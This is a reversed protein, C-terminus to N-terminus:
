RCSLGVVEWVASLVFLLLLPLALFLLSTLLDSFAPTVAARVVVGLLGVAMGMSGCLVFLCFSPWMRLAMVWASGLVWFAARIVLPTCDLSRCRPGM